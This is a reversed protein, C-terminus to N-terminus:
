DDRLPVSTHLMQWTLIPDSKDIGTTASTDRTSGIPNQRNASHTSNLRQGELKQLNLLHKASQAEVRQELDELALEVIKHLAKGRVLAKRSGDLLLTPPIGVKGPLHVACLEDHSNISCILAGDLSAEESATCDAVLQCTMSTEDALVGYTIALPSHHLALPLPDREESKHLIITLGGKAGSGSEPSFLVSVEPRRFAQLASLAALMCGDSVNGDFNLVRVDCTILWVREGSVVCLSEMDIADSERISKELLRTIAHSTHGAAETASSLNANFQLIGETPRDLYPAVVEGRITCVCRTDGISVESRSSLESRNLYVEVDRWDNLTRGDLRLGSGIMSSRLFIGQSGSENIRQQMM